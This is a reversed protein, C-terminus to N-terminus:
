KIIVSKNVQHFLFFIQLSSKRRRTLRERCRKGVCEDVNLNRCRGKCGTSGLNCGDKWVVWWEKVVDRRQMGRM